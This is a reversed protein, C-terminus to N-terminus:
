RHFRCNPEERMTGLFRADPAGISPTTTEAPMGSSSSAHLEDLVQLSVAQRVHAELGAGNVLNALNHTDGLGHGGGGDHNLNLATFGAAVVAPFRQIVQKGGGVGFHAGAVVEHQDGAAADAGRFASGVVNGALPGVGVAQGVHRDVTHKDTGGRHGGLLECWGSTM